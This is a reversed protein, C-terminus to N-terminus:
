GHETPWARRKAHGPLFQTKFAAQQRTCSCTKCARLVDLLSLEMRERERRCDEDVTNAPGDTANLRCLGPKLRWITDTARM